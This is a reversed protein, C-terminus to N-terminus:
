LGSIIEQNSQGCFLSSSEEPQISRVKKICAMYSDTLSVEASENEIKVLYVNKYKRRNTGSWKSLAINSDVCQYLVQFNQGTRKNFRHNFERWGYSLGLRKEEKCREITTVNKSNFFVVQSQTTGSRVVKAIMMINSEAAQIVNSTSLLALLVWASFKFDM